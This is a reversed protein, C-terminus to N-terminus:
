QERLKRARMGALRSEFLGEGFRYLEWDLQHTQMLFEQTKPPLDGLQVRGSALNHNQHREGGQWGFGYRLLEVSEAFRETLGVFAYSALREKACELAVRDPPSSYMYSVIAADLDAKPGLRSRARTAISFPDLDAALATVMSNPYFFRSNHLWESLSRHRMAEAHLYHGTERRMYEYSSITREVPNRLFTIITPERPLMRTFFHYFHGRFLRYDALHRFESNFFGTYHVAPFVESASFHQNM